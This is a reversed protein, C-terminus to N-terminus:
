SGKHSTKEAEPPQSWPRPRANNQLAIAVALTKELKTLRAELASTKMLDGLWKAGQLGIKVREVEPIDLTEYRVLMRSMLKRVQKPTNYGNERNLKKIEMSFSPLGDIAGPM